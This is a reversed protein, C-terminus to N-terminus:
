PRRMGVKMGCALWNARLIAWAMPPVGMLM